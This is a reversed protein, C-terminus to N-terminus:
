EYLDLIEFGFKEEFLFDTERNVEDEDEEDYFEDEEDLDYDGDTIVEQKIKEWEEWWQETTKTKMMIKSKAM